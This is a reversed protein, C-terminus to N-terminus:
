RGRRTRGRDPRARHRAERRVLARLRSDRRLDQSRAGQCARAGRAPDSSGGRGDRLRRPGRRLAPEGERARREQTLARADRQVRRHRGVDSRGRDRRRLRRRRPRAPDHRDGRRDGHQVRRVRHVAVLAPRAHRAGDLGLRRGHEPHDAPDLVPECPRPRAEPAPRLLGPVGQARRHRHRDLRRHARSRARRRAGLGGRGPPGRGRDDARLSGHAAGAQPRAVPASRLGEARLRLQGPVRQRGVARHGGRRIERGRPQGM